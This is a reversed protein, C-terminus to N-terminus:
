APAAPAGTLQASTTFMLILGLSAVVLNNLASSLTSTSVSKM